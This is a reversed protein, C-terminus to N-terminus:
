TFHENYILIRTNLKRRQDVGRFCIRFLFKGFYPIHMHTHTHTHTQSHTYAHTSLTCSHQSHMNHYHMSLHMNQSCCNWLSILVAFLVVASMCWVMLLFGDSQCTKDVVTADLQSCSVKNENVLRTKMRVSLLRMSTQVGQEGPWTGTLASAGMLGGNAGWCVSSMLLLASSPRQLPYHNIHCGENIVPTTVLVSWGQAKLHLLSLSVCLWFWPLASVSEGAGVFSRCVVLNERMLILVKCQLNNSVDTNRNRLTATVSHGPSLAWGRSWWKQLATTSPMTNTAVLKLWFHSFAKWM